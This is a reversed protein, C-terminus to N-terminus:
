KLTAYNDMVLLVEADIKALFRLFELYRCQWHCQGIVKGTAVNLAAFLSATSHRM